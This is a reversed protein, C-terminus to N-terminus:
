DPTFTKVTILKDNILKLFYFFEFYLKLNLPCDQETSQPVTEKGCAGFGMELSRRGNTQVDGGQRRM